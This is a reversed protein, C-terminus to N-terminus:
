KGFDPHATLKILGKLSHESLMFRREALLREGFPKITIANLEKSTLRLNALCSDEAHHVILKKLEIPLGVFTPQPRQSPGAHDAASATTSSMNDDTLTPEDKTHENKTHGDTAVMKSRTALTFKPLDM